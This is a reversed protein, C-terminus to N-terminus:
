PRHAGIMRLALDAYQLSIAQPGTPGDVDFWQPLSTCMTAIARGTELPMPTSAQGCELAHAIETDILQQVGSRRAAIRRREPPLISRMESAGIFALDARLTHFLALAEVLRALRDLPERATQLAAALRWDLEDMILDFIRVLLAQKGSYHHYIGPISIGAKEAIARMTAGHYGTEVFSSIAAALVPDVDLPAFERWRAGPPAPPAPPAEVTRLLASVPEGLEEAFATLRAVSVGTRGNEIASITAASVGMRRALERTSWGRRMRAERIRRGPAAARETSSEKTMNNLIDSRKWLPAEM